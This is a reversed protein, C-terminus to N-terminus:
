AYVDTKTWDFMPVLPQTKARAANCYRCDPDICNSRFGYGNCDQCTATSYAGAQTIVTVRGLRECTPCDIDTAQRKIYESM